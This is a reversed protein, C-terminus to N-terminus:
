MNNKRKREDEEESEDESDSPDSNPDPMFNAAISGALYEEKKSNKRVKTQQVKSYLNM